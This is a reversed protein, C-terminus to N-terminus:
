EFLLAQSDSLDFTCCATTGSWEVKVAEGDLTKVDEYRKKLAFEAVLGNVPHPNYNALGVFARKGDDLVGADINGRSLSIQRRAGAKEAIAAIKARVAEDGEMWYAVGYRVTGNLEDLGSRVITEDRYLTRKRAAGSCFSMGAWDAFTLIKGKGVATEKVPASIDGKRFAFESIPKQSAACGGERWEDFLVAPDDAEDRSLAGPSLVLTGGAKVWDLIKGQVVRNAHSMPAFLVKYNDLFGDEVMHERLFDIRYGSFRLAYALGRMESKSADVPHTRWLDTAETSLIAVGAKQRKQGVLYPAIEPLSHTFKAISKWKGPTEAWEWGSARFGVRYISLDTDANLLASMFVHEYASEESRCPFMMLTSGGGHRPNLERIQAAFMPSLIAMAFPGTPEYYPTMGQVEPLDLAGERALLFYDPTMMWTQRAAFGGGYYWGLLNVRTKVNPGVYTKVDDTTAKFVLATEKNLARAVLYRAIRGERTEPRKEGVPSIPFSEPLEPAIRCREADFTARFAPSNPYGSVFAIEDGIRVLDPLPRGPAFSARYKEWFARSKASWGADRPTYLGGAGGGTIFASGEKTADKPLWKAGQAGNNGGLKRCIRTLQEMLRSDRTMMSTGKFRFIDFWINVEFGGLDDHALEDYGADDLVKELAVLHDAFWKAKPSSGPADADFEVAVVGGEVRREPLSVLPAGDPTAAVELGVSTREVFNTGHKIRFVVGAYLESRGGNALIRPMKIWGSLGDEGVNTRDLEIESKRSPILTAEIRAGAADPVSVRLYYNTSVSPASPAATTTAAMAAVSLAALASSMFLQM